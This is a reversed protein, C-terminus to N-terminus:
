HVIVASSTRLAVLATLIMGYQCIISAVPEHVNVINYGCALFSTHTDECGVSDLCFGDMTGAGATGTTDFVGSRFYM